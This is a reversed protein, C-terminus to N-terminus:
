RGAASRGAGTGHLVCAPIAMAGHGATKRGACALVRSASTTGSGPAPLARGTLRWQWAGAVIRPPRALVATLFSAAYRPSVGAEAPPLVPDFPVVVFGPHWSALQRRVAAVNTPSARPLAARTDALDALVRWGANVPEALVTPNAGPGTGGVLNWRMKTVAQWVLPPNSQYYAVPFTLVSTGEPLQTGATTAWRPVSVKEVTIPVVPAYAAAIPLVAVLLVAGGGLAALRASRGNGAGARASRSALWDHVADAILALLVAAALFTVVLFREPTVDQLVPLGSFARWPAWGGPSVGLSFLLSVVGMSMWFWLRRDRRRWVLGAVVVVFFGAGLFSSPPLPPGYYGSLRAAIEALVTEVGSQTAPDLVGHLPAGVTAGNPWVVGSLHQPGGLAYWLPFALLVVAGAIASGLGVLAGHV